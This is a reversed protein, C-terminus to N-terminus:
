VADNGDVGGASQEGDAGVGRFDAAEARRVSLYYERQLGADGGRVYRFRERGYAVALENVAGCLYILV